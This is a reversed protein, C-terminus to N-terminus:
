VTVQKAQNCSIAQMCVKIRAFLRSKIVVFLDESGNSAPCNVALSLSICVVTFANFNTFSQGGIRENKVIEIRKSMREIRKSYSYINERRKDM